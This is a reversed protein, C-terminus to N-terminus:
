NYAFTIQYTGSYLGIPNEEPPGVFLTAGISIALSGDTEFFVDSSSEPQSLWDGVQLTNGSTNHVLTSPGEPLQININAGPMGSVNFRGPSHSGLALIVTGDAMRLGDPTVTIRGGLSEPSFRGFNLQDQEVATLAEIVEAFVESTISVQSWAKGSFFVMGILLIYLYQKM